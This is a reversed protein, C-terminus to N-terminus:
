EPLPRTEWSFELHCQKEMDHTKGTVLDQFLYRKKALLTRTPNPHHWSAKAEEQSNMCNEALMGQPM